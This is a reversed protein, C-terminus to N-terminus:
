VNMFSILYSVLLAYRHTEKVLPTAPTKKLFFLTHITASIPFLEAFTRCLTKRRYRLFSKHQVHANKLQESKLQPASKQM